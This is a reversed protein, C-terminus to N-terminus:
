PQPLNAESVILKGNEWVDLRQKWPFRDDKVIRWFPRGSSRWADIMLGKSFDQGKATIVLANNERLGGEYAVGWNLKFHRLQMPQLVTVFAEVWHWCFGKKQIGLNILWNHMLASSHMNWERRYHEITTVIERSMTDAELQVARNQRLREPQLALIDKKLKIGNAWLSKQEQLRYWQEYKPRLRPSLTNRKQWSVRSMTRRERMSLDQLLAALEHDAEEYHQELTKNSPAAFSVGAGAVILIFLLIFKFLQPM